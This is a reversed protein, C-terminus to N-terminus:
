HGGMLGPVWKMGAMMPRCPERVDTALSAAFEEEIGALGGTAPDAGM